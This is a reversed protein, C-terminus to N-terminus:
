GIHAPKVALQTQTAVAQPPKAYIHAYATPQPQTPQHKQTQFFIGRACDARDCWRCLMPHATRLDRAKARPMAM